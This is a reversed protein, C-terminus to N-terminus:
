MCPQAEVGGGNHSEIADELAVGQGHVRGGCQHRWVVDHSEIASRSLSLSVHTGGFNIV